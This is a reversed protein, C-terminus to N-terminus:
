VWDLDAVLPLHDSAESEVTWASHVRFEPSAFIYDIRVDPRGDRSDYRFTALQTGTLSEAVAAADQWRATIATVEPSGPRDNWDGMLIVPLGAQELRQRVTQVHVLREERSLGLHTVGVVMERGSAEVRAVLLCRNERTGHRPLTIVEHGFVPFRSLLANGFGCPRGGPFPWRRPVAAAFAWRMGLGEALRAAQAAFGSRLGWHQDVEQLGVLDANVERIVRSVRGLDVRGDLGRAHRINYTM